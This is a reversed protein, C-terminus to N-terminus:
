PRAESVSRSFALQGSTYVLSAHEVGFFYALERYDECDHIVFDARKGRELSGIEDGRGLSYAANITAATIAEAPTMKMQTCALSLIMPMSPTPSSGPNFDTALVVALGADIMERAPPYQHSGLAYVSGPLLVPQVKGTKLATIGTADTHELHDATAANLEAALKAGGSLTLQDAHVRLGLGHCRAASLIEWSEDTTFVDTECFVDCYEALKEDVVRPLMENIVLSVYTARRSKYESPIDHAGLFTPVYRLPTEENLQKIARLIKLEDEITLGYGSKAEITTTGCRLFWQAYRQGAKVLDNLSANRTARVTSRIGGGRAAIERYTAGSSRQEFENARIGAFVPHTHADVFGPMVVRQRADVIECDGTILSEIERRRGVAEIRDGRVFMAGDEIISLQRLDGGTRARKAGALTVVQSCNLIALTEPM